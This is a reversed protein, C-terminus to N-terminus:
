WATAGATVAANGGGYVPTGTSVVLTNGGGRGENNAGSGRSNGENGRSNGGVAEMIAATVEM